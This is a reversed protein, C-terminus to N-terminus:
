AGQRQKDERSAPDPFSRLAPLALKVRQDAAIVDDILVLIDGRATQAGLRRLEAVSTDGTVQALRLHPFLRQLRRRYSATTPHALVLETGTEECDSSLQALLLELDKSM